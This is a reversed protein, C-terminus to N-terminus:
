GESTRGSSSLQTILDRASLTLIPSQVFGTLDRSVICEIDNLLGCAIQLNDEFDDSPFSHALELAARDVACVILTDLCLRISTREHDRDTWKRAVYYINTLSTASIHGSLTGELCLRWVEAADVAWPSRDLLVDLVVNTDLLVRM